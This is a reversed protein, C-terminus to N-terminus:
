DERALSLEAMHEDVWQEYERAVTRSDKGRTDIPEGILVRITGPRKLGGGSPWCFGANHLVPVVPAQSDVALQAGSRAFRGVRGPAARTGEPFVVVSMGNRLRETGQRAISQSAQRPRSRDIAIPKQLRLAWGWFPINLLEQKLIPVVPSFLQYLFFTEWTSQHNSLIVAPEEPINDGGILEYRVGCTVRLWALVLRCWLAYVHFRKGAPLLWFLTMVMVSSVLTLLAYGVSFVINRAFM